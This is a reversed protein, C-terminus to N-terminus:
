NNVGHHCTPSGSTLAQFSYGNELGWVIIREVAEVSFGKIDHQLVVSNTKNGIGGIVNYFVEDASSAGGADGSSVNWDFYQFGAEQVAKTLRSMIGPNFRSVTNSSGGPFRMLTTKIGTHQEIIGQMEYLDAFFAEESAYIKKYNHSVSHIGISHGDAAIESLLSISGTDVVFFTAKVNHKRLIELLQRTYAGPGDDFTLYITKGKGKNPDPTDLDPTPPTSVSPKQPAPAKVTVKRIVSSTNGYNDTVQYTLEYSDPKDTNVEGTVTIKGTLSGDCNDMATCGPDEFRTGATVTMEEEGQLYLQPPIPDNYVITRRVEATNGAADSVTYIVETKTATRRVHSIVDGDHADWATYGEELYMQGPLTYREPDAKLTIVPPTTDVVHIIRELTQSIGEYEARYTLTYDGVVDTNVTGSCVVEVQTPTTHFITGRYEATVAEPQYASGYEVTVEQGGDTYMAISYVNKASAVGFGVATVVAVLLLAAAAIQWWKWQKWKM